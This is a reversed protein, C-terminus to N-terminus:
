VAGFLTLTYVVVGGLRNELYLKNDTHISLTARADTGTTGTLAGTTYDISAGGSGEAIPAVAFTGVTDWAFICATVESLIALIGTSVQGAPVDFSTAADDNLTNQYVHVVSALGVPTVARATATGTLTEAATALVVTGSASATADPLDVIRRGARTGYSVM